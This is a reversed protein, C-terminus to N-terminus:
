TCNGYVSIISNGREDMGDKKQIWNHHLQVRLFINAYIVFHDKLLNLQNLPVHPDKHTM